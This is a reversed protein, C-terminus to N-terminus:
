KEKKNLKQQAYKDLQAASLCDSNTEFFAEYKELNSM